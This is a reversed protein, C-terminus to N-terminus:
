EDGKVTTARADHLEERIRDEARRREQEAFTRSEMEERLRRIQDLTRREPRDAAIAREFPASTSRVEEVPPNDEPLDISPSAWGEAMLLEAERRTLEIDDGERYPSVDVGDLHDALKRVLKIRM